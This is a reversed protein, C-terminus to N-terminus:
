AGREARFGRYIKLLAEFDEDRTGSVITRDFYKEEELERKATEIRREIESDSDGRLRMRGRVVDLSEPRIFVCRLADSIRGDSEAVARWARAGQVDIILIVDLGCSLKELIERRSTGYYRGHVRAWEYFEGAEIGREFEEPTTFYYDRGDAEGPRPPRTTTTVARTVTPCEAMLRECVTNKGSGAPGSVVLLMGDM